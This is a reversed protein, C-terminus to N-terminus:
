FKLTLKSYSKIQPFQKQWSITKESVIISTSHYCFPSKQRENITRHLQPSYAHDNHDLAAASTEGNKM